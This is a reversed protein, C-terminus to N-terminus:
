VLNGKPTPEFDWVKTTPYLREYDQWHDLMVNFKRKLDDVIHPGLVFVSEEDPCSAVQLLPEPQSEILEILEACNDLEERAIKRQNLARMDCIMNDDYDMMNPGYQPQEAIDLSYQFMIVHKATTLGCVLAGIRAAYLRLYAAKEADEVKGAIRNVTGQAGRLSNIAEQLCWRCLWMVSEGRLVGKGLFMSFSPDDKEEEIAYIFNRYYATEEPTLKEPEPVLPRLLWRMSVTGFTILASVGKQRLQGYAHIASSVSSWAGLLQEGLEESGTLVTAARLSLQARKVSGTGPDDLYCQLLDRALDLDSPNITLAVHGTDGEPNHYAGQLGGLFDAPNGLGLFPWTPGWVGGSLFAGGVTFGSGDRGRGNVYIGPELRERAGDVWDTPLGSSNACLEIASGAELAGARMANLWTAIREGGNRTRWRTPGNMGPYICPSWSVGGGSDNSLFSYREIEPLITCYEKMARRYLDLVEPEDISPAWYPKMAIRGLECHPGMWRPHARYVGEPLWMPEVGYTAAKLGFEALIDIQARLDAQAARASELSVWPQIEEPPCVRLVAPATNCWAAYPDTNDPLVWSGHRYPILIGMHTAGFEAALEAMRRYTDPHFMASQGGYIDLSLGRGNLLARTRNRLTSTETPM